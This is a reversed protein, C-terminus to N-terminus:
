RLQEQIIDQCVALCQGCILAHVGHTSPPQVLDPPSMGCFNCAPEKRRKAALRPLSFLSLGGPRNPAQALGAHSQVGGAGEPALQLCRAVCEACITIGPAAILKVPPQRKGCFGCSLEATETQKAMAAIGELIRRL